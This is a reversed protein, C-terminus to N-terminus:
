QNRMPAVVGSSFDMEGPQVTVPGVEGLVEVGCSDPIGGRAPGAVEELKGLTIAYRSWWMDVFGAGDIEVEELLSAMGLDTTRLHLQPVEDEVAFVGDAVIGV